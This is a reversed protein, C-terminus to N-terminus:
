QSGQGFPDLIFRAINEDNCAFILRTLEYLVDAQGIQAARRQALDELSPFKSKVM